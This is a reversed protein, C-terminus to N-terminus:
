LPTVLKLSFFIWLGRCTQVHMHPPSACSLQQLISKRFNNNLLNVKKTLFTGLRWFNTTKEIQLKSFTKQQTTQQSPWCVNNICCVQECTVFLFFPQLFFHCPLSPQTFLILKFFFFFLQFHAPQIIWPLKSSPM